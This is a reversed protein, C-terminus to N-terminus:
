TTEDQHIVTSGESTLDVPFPRLNSLAADLAKHKDSSALFLMCGGGGAGLLKGGYAGASIGAQYAQSIMPNSIGSALSQKLSWNDNLLKGAFTFQGDTLSQAFAPVMSVMTQLAAQKDAIANNNNQEVLISSASRQNGLYYLKIHSSFASMGQDNLGLATVDVDDNRQFTIVNLGGYAAAYQDQKGIPEKLDGLEVDCATKGLWSATAEDARSLRAMLNHLTGVTFSSSSGMGTGSPVDAISSVELGTSVQLRQMISRLIPHNLDDIAKVTETKSYKTRIEDGNFYDHSSIYMYKNISTSIVAGGHERYFSPLDSGGGIFSIRFPTRTIIM